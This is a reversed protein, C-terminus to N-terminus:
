GPLVINLSDPERLLDKGYVHISLAGADSHNSIRHIDGIGPRVFATDGPRALITATQCCNLVGQSAQTLRFTSVTLAGEYVGACGWATHGHIPTGQGPAWVLALISFRGFPDVYLRHRRYTDAAGERHRPALLDASRLAASLTRAMRGPLADESDSEVLGTIARALELVEDRADSAPGYGRRLHVPHQLVAAQVFGKALESV